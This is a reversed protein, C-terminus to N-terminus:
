KKPFPKFYLLDSISHIAGTSTLINSKSWLPRIYNITKTESSGPVSFVFTDVDPNIKIDVGVEVTLPNGAAMTAYDKGGWDFDNLYYEAGIFHYAVFLYFSNQQNSLQMGPTSIRAILDQITLIGNKMYISDSEALITYKSWWLKSRIGSLRIAEALISYGAQQQIWDYGSIQPKQLVESIIHIYGNTMLLNSKTVSSLSNLKIFQNNGDTYFGTVLRDGTLTKEFLGGDPFEDTRVKGNLTHYRVLSKIFGTDRLLEEFGSYKPNKSIYNDIAKDTPLFLTYDNGYPNYGYLSNLMKSELMLKYFKSYEKQNLSIYSSISLSNKNFSDPVIAEPSCSAIIACFMVFHLMRSFNIVGNFFRRSKFLVSMKQNIKMERITILKNKCKRCKYQIKIDRFMFLNDSVRLAKGCKATM